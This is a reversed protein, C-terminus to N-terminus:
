GDLIMEKVIWLTAFAAVTTQAYAASWGPLSRLLLHSVVVAVIVSGWRHLVRNLQNFRM